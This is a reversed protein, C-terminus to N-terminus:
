VGEIEGIAFETRPNKPDLSKMQTFVQVLSDKEFLIGQLADLAMKGSGDVDPRRSDFYYEVVVYVPKTFPKRGRMASKALYAIRDKFDHGEPTMWYGKRGARYAQNTSVQKGPVTFIVPM